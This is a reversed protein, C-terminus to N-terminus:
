KSDSWCRVDWCAGDCWQISAGDAVADGNTVAAADFAAERSPVAGDGSADANKVDGDANALPEREWGSSIADGNAVADADRVNRVGGCADASAAADGTRRGKADAAADGGSVADNTVANADGGGADIVDM